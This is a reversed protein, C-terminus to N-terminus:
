KTRSRQEDARQRKYEREACTLQVQGLVLELAAQAFRVLRDCIGEAQALVKVPGDRQQVKSDVKSASKQIAQWAERPLLPHPSQHFGNSPDKACQYVGKAM